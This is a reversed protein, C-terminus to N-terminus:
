QIMEKEYLDEIYITTTIVSGNSVIKKVRKGDGDYVFQTTIGGKIITIPRNEPDYSINRGAGLYMNGCTDYSYSNTGDYTIAHPHSSSYRQEIGNARVINGIPNYEYTNNDGSMLRDLDDYVYNKINSRLIDTIKTINGVSDYEYLLDQLSGTLISKLRQNEPFYDFRTVMPNSFIVVAPQQSANYDTSLVYGDISETLGANNYTFNVTKLNPFIISKIRDMADFTWELTYTNGDITKELKVVRGEKDYDWRNGGSLDQMSTRRGISNTSTREDYNHVVEIGVRGAYDKSTNRNLEDYSYNIIAGNADTTKVLNGNNDYDYRWTGLDPDVMRTRRKLSDYFFESRNNLHDTILRLNDLADYTYKTAYEETANKEAVSSLRGYADKTFVKTHSNEDTVSTTWGNYSNNISTSDPKTIQTVRALADYAYSTWKVSADPELYSTRLGGDKFYPLSTRAVEGRANYATTIFSFIREDESEKASQIVREFGDLIDIKILHNSTGNEETTRTLIYNSGPGNIGYEYSESGYTSSSDYPGIIKKKRGFGDYEFITENNNPDTKSKVQGFLGNSDTALYYSITEVHNKPNTITVPFAHYSSDYAITTTFNNADTKTIENGYNDYTSATQIYDNSTNRYRRVKTLDGKNPSDTFNANNDYFYQTEAAPVGSGDTNSFLRERAPLSVLWSSPNITYDTFISKEDGPIDIDGYYTAKTINGYDDYEYATRACKSNTYEDVQTLPTFYPVTNDERYANLTRSISNEQRELKGLKADDQHFYTHSVYGLPDTAQVHKFGRFERNIIDYWGDGYLYGTIGLEGIGSNKTISKAVPLVFNLKPNNYDSSAVYGITTKAGFPSTQENLLGVGFNNRNRNVRWDFTATCLYGEVKVRLLYPYILDIKGDMDIDTFISNKTVINAFYNDNDYTHDLSSLIRKTTTDFRNGLNYAVQWETTPYYRFNVMPGDVYSNFVLDPLGDNNVDVITGNEGIRTSIVNYIWIESYNCTASYSKYRYAPSARLFTVEGGFKSGDNYRVKWNYLPAYKPYESCPVTDYQWPSDFDNYVLDLLGDGNMDALTANEGLRIHQLTEYPEGSPRNWSRKFYGKDYPLWTYEQSSFGNGTNIRVAWGYVAYLVGGWPVQDGFKYYLLDAKGDGNMDVLQATEGVRFRYVSKFPIIGIYYDYQAQSSPLWTTEEGFGHGTNLRVKIDYVDWTHLQFSVCGNAKSYVLDPLGDGNMDALTANHGLSISEWHGQFDLCYSNESALWVEPTASFGNKNGRYLLWSTKYAVTPPEANAGRPCQEELKCGLFDPIGDGTLDLVAIDFNRPINFDQFAHEDQQTFLNGTDSQWLAQSNFFDRNQGNIYTFRTPPLGQGDKGVEIISTLLSLQTIGDTSYNMIYQKQDRSEASIHIEKLRRNIRFAPGYYYTIIKDPRDESSFSVKCYSSLGLGEPYRIEKLYIEENNPREYEIVVSIGHTDTVKTLVWKGGASTEFKYLTGDRDWVQWISGNFEIRMNTEIKTRYQSGGICVLEQSLGNLVLLYPNNPNNAGFKNIKAIYGPELEWGKGLWSNAGGSRYQLELRVREQINGTSPLLTIPVSTTAEGTFPSADLPLSILTPGEAVFQPLRTDSPEVAFSLSVLLTTLFITFISNIIFKTKM